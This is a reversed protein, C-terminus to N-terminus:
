RWGKKFTEPIPLVHYHGWIKDKGHDLLLKTTAQTRHYWKRSWTKGDTSVKYSHRFKKYMFDPDGQKYKRFVGQGSFEGIYGLVIEEGNERYILQTVFCESM